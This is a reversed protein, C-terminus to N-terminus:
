SCSMGDCDGDFVQIKCMTQCYSYISYLIRAHLFTFHRKVPSMSVIVSFPLERLRVTLSRLQELLLRCINQLLIRWMIIVYTPPLSSSITAHVIRFTQAKKFCFYATFSVVGIYRNFRHWYTYTNWTILLSCVVCSKRQKWCSWSLSEKLEQNWAANGSHGLALDKLQVRTGIHMMDHVSVMRNMVQLPDCQQLKQVYDV